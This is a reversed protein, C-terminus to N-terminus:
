LKLRRSEILERIAQIDEENIEVIKQSGKIKEYHEIINNLRALKEETPMVKRLHYQLRANEGILDQYCKECYSPEEEGCHLCKSKDM